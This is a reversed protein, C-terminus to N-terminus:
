RPLLIEVFIQTELQAYRQFDKFIKETDATLDAQCLAEGLATRITKHRKGNDKDESKNLIGKKLFFSKEQPVSTIEQHCFVKNGYWSFYFVIDWELM